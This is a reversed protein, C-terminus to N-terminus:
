FIAMRGKGAGLGGKLIVQLAYRSYHKTCVTLPGRLLSLYSRILHTHWTDKAKNSKSM